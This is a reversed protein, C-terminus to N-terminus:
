NEPNKIDLFHKIVINNDMLKSIENETLEKYVIFDGNFNFKVNIEKYNNNEFCKNLVDQDANPLFKEYKKAIKICKNTINEQRWKECDILLVGSNFYKSNINLDLNKYLELFTDGLKVLVYKEWVAGLVNGELDIDYLEKIDRL